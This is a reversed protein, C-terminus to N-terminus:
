SQIAFANLLFSDFIRDILLYDKSRAELKSRRALTSFNILRSSFSHFRPKIRDYDPRRMKTCCCSKGGHLGHGRDRRVDVIAPRTVCVSYIYPTSVLDRPIIDYGRPATLFHLSTHFRPPYDTLWRTFQEPRSDLSAQWM